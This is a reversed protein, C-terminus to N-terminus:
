INHRRLIRETQSIGQDFFYKIEEYSHIDKHEFTEMIEEFYNNIDNYGINGEIFQTALVEDVAVIIPLFNGGETGFKLVTSFAKFKNVDLSEFSLKGLEELRLKPFNSKVRSPYTLAYQLSYYMKPVSLIAKEFGDVFEVISHVVSERHVIPSIKTYPLGFLFHAEMVEFAKNVMTASDITIKRGMRWNPHKLAMAANVSSISSEDYDLFPGGSATIILREISEFPEGLLIQFIASAESDVPLIYKRSSENFIVDGGAIISEKNAIAVRKKESLLEIIAPLATIESSLFLTIDPSADGLVSTLEKEVDFVYTDSLDFKIKQAIAESAGVYKVRNFSAQELLLNGNSFGTIGVVKYDDGLNHVVELAEKGLSGTSGVIFVSKM